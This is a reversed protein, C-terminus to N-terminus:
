RKVWKGILLGVAFAAGIAVAPHSAFTRSARQVLNEIEPLEDVAREVAETARSEGAATKTKYHNHLRNHM